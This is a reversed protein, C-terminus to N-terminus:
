KSKNKFPYHIFDQRYILISGIELYSTKAFLNQLYRKKSIKQSLYIHANKEAIEDYQAIFKEETMNFWLDFWRDAVIERDSHEFKHLLGDETQAQMLFAIKTGIAEKTLYDVHLLKRVTKGFHDDVRVNRDHKLYAINYNKARESAWVYDSALMMQLQRNQAFPLEKDEKLLNIPM